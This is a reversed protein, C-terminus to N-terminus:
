RNSRRSSVGWTASSAATPVHDCSEEEMIEYYEILSQIYDAMASIRDAGVGYVALESDSVVYDGAEDREILVRLPQRVIWGPAISGWFFVVEPQELVLFSATTIKREAIPLPFGSIASAISSHGLFGPFTGRSPEARLGTSVQTGGQKGYCELERPSRRGLTSQIANIIDQMKELSVVVRVIGETRLSKISEVKESIEEPSGMLIPPNVEYFGLYCVGQGVQISFENAFRTVTNEGWHHELRLAAQRVEAPEDAM